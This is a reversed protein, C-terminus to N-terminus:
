LKNSIPELLENEKVHSLAYGNHAQGLSDNSIYSLFKWMSDIVSKLEPNKEDIDIQQLKTRIEKADIKIYYLIQRNNSAIKELLEIKLTNVKDKDSTAM